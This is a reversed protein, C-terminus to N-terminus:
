ILKKTISQNGQTLKLIYVGTSLNETSLIESNQITQNLMRRGLVNYIEVTTEFNTNLNIHLENKVPNPYVKISSMDFEDSSLTSYCTWTIDDFAVRNTATSNGDIVISVNNEVNINPITITQVENEAGYAITGVVTGNVSLNFTGASGGYVRKTTVTFSGIGGATTPITISGRTTIARNTISQDTRAETATWTAGNDGTWTRTAYNSADAPINEFTEAGCESGSQGAETTTGEVSTSEDSENTAADKAIVTFSYTTEPTLNTVTASNTTVTMEFVGDVYVDYSTVAVNDTSATWAISISTSGENTVVL